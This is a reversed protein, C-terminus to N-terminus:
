CRFRAGTRELSYSRCATTQPQLLIALTGDQAWLAQIIHFEEPRLRSRNPGNPDGRVMALM